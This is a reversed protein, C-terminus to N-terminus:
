RDGPGDDQPADGFGRRQYWAEATLLFVAAGAADVLLDWPDAARGSVFLQHFEDSFGYLVALGWALPLRRARGMPALARALLLALVGYVVFHGAVQQAEWFFGSGILPLRPRSSLIFILGMWAVAVGWRSAANPGAREAPPAPAPSPTDGM